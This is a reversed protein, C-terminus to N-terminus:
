KVNFIKDEVRQKFVLFDARLNEFRFALTNFERRLEHLEHMENTEIKKLRKDLNNGDGGNRRAAWVRGIERVLFVLGVIVAAAGGFDVLKNYIEQEM